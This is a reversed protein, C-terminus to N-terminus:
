KAEGSADSEGASAPEPSASPSDRTQTPEQSNENETGSSSGKDRNADGQAKERRDAAPIGVLPALDDADPDEPIYVRELPMADVSLRLLFYAVTAATWAFAVPFTNAIVILGTAWVSALTQAVPQASSWDFGSAGFFQESLLLTLSIVVRVVSSVFVGLVASLVVLWIVYLPRSFLYSFARSLSDFADTGETAVGAIMLPWSLCVGLLLLAAGLAILLTLGWFAGAIIPGAVPIRGILGGLFIMLWLALVGSIPLMVTSLSTTVNRVSYRVAGGLGISHDDSFQLATLRAIAGGFVSWVLLGVLLQTLAFAFGTISRTFVLQSLPTRVVSDSLVNVIADASVFYEPSLSQVDQNSTSTLDDVDFTRPSGFVPVPDQSVAFPLKDVAQMAFVYVACGIAALLWKKPDLALRAVEGLHLWPLLRKWRLQDTELFAEELDLRRQQNM